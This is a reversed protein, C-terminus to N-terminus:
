FPNFRTDSLSDKNTIKESDKVLGGLDKEMLNSCLKQGVMRGSPESQRRSKGM